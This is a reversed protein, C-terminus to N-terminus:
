CYGSRVFLAYLSLKLRGLNVLLYVTFTIPPEKEIIKKEINNDKIKIQFQFTHTFDPDITVMHCAFQSLILRWKCPLQSLSM